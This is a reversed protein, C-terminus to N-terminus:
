KPDKTERCLKANITRTRSFHWQYKSLAHESHTVAKPLTIVKATNKWDMLVTYQEMQEHRWTKGWQRVTKQTIAEIEKRPNIALYRVRTSATTFPIRLNENQFNMTLTSFYLETHKQRAAKSFENTLEPLKKTTDKSNEIYLTM